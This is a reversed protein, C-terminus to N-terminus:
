LAEDMKDFKIYKVIINYAIINKMKLYILTINHKELCFIAKLVCMVIKLLRYNCLINFPFPVQNPLYMGHLGQAHLVFM